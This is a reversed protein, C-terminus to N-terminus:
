AVGKRKQGEAVVKEVWEIERQFKVHEEPTGKLSFSGPPLEILNLPHMSIWDGTAIREMRMLVLTELDTYTLLASGKTDEELVDYLTWPRGDKPPYDRNIATVVREPHMGERRIKMRIFMEPPVKKANTERREIDAQKAAEREARKEARLNCKAVLEEDRHRKGCTECDTM